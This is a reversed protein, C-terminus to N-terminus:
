DDRVFRNSRRAATPAPNRKKQVAFAPLARDCAPVAARGHLENPRRANASGPCAAALRDARGGVAIIEVARANTEGSPDRRHLTEYSSLRRDVALFAVIILLIANASAKVTPTRAADGRRGPRMMVLLASCAALLIPSRDFWPHPQPEASDVSSRSSWPRRRGPEKRASGRPSRRRPSCGSMTRHMVNINTWDGRPGSVRQVCIQVRRPKRHRYSRHAHSRRFTCKTM